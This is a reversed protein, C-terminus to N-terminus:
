QGSGGDLGAQELRAEITRSRDLDLQSWRAEPEAELVATPVLGVLEARAVAAEAAVADYVAGPGVRHPAILNCSVQVADGVRLGLARVYPGRVSAAVRKATDLDDGALWLNWAVLVDRAGVAIAGATAHPASPGHDPPLVTFADRRVEPLSREPGYLFCPLGLEVAAWRAYGDRAAVADLDTSGGLAVFPVVDVAGFRPHVGEHRRIDIAEVAVVTLDRAAQEAAPGALTLVARNHDPDRHVDLLSPGGARILRELVDGRRGESVNAVCELM